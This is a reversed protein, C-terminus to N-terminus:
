DISWDAYKDSDKHSEKSYKSTIKVTRSGITTHLKKDYIQYEMYGSYHIGGKMKSLGYVTAPIEFGFLEESTKILKDQTVYLKRRRDNQAIYNGNGYVNTIHLVRDDELIGLFRSHIEKNNKDIKVTKNDHILGVFSNPCTAFAYKKDSNFDGQRFCSGSDCGYYGVLAFAKPDTSITIYCLNPESKNKKHYEGLIAVQDNVIKALEPSIKKRKVYGMIHTTAYMNKFKTLKEHCFDQDSFKYQVYYDPMVNVIKSMIPRVVNIDLGKTSSDTEISLTKSKGGLIERIKGHSIDIRNIWDDVDQPIYDHRVGYGDILRPQYIKAVEQSFDVLWKKFDEM